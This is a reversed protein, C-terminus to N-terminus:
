VTVLCSWNTFLSQRWTCKKTTQFEAQKPIPFLLIKEQKKTIPGQQTKYRTIFQIFCKLRMVKYSKLCNSQYKMWEPPKTMLLIKQPGTLKVKLTDSERGITLDEYIDRIQPNKHTHLEMYKQWTKKRDEKELLDKREKIMCIKLTYVLLGKAKQM